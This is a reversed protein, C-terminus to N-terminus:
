GLWECPEYAPTTLTGLSEGRKNVLPTWHSVPNAVPLIPKPKASVDFSAYVVALPACM